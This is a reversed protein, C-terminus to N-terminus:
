TTEEHPCTGGNFQRGLNCNHCLVRFGPPFDNARLWTWYGGGGLEQRHKRGGGNIHDLALFQMMTEGCCSCAPTGASYARLVELRLARSANKRKGVLAAQQCTSSCYLRQEMSGVFETTCCLCAKTLQPRCQACLTRGDNWRGFSKGCGECRGVTMGGNKCSNCQNRYGGTDTRRSFAAVPKVEHCKRCVKSGAPAELGLCVDCRGCNRCAKDHLKPERKPRRQAVAQEPRCVRCWAHAKGCSKVTFESM